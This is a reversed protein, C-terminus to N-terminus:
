RYIESGPGALSVTLKKETLLTRLEPLSMPASASSYETTFAAPSGGHTEVRLEPLIPHTVLYEGRRETRALEEESVLIEHVKEGPRIGTIEIPYNDDEAVVKAVDTILASPVIPLYTEGRGASRFAELILNVSQDLTMLFRTMRPDTIPIPRGKRVWDIFFPIASGRSAMVNGYRVNVFDAEAVDLNAQILLREQLAKTMGMVTVPKCAKDTSVGVVVKARDSSERIARCLNIAGNINTDVAAPGSYECAPVQKLAAAHFVVDARDAARRLDALNRVDGLVFRLQNRHELYIIDDTASEAHLFHLRMYHQKAEDRSLITISEPIGFEGTLLRKTLRQGLSGTGGLILISRDKLSRPRRDTPTNRQM